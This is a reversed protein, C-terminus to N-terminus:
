SNWNQQKSLRQQQSKFDYLIRQKNQSEISHTKLRREIFFLDNRCSLTSYMWKFM